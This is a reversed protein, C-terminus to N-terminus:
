PTLKYITGCSGTVACSGSSNGGNRASGYIDGAKNLLVPGNPGQGDTLGTFSYLTVPKGSKPLKFVVGCGSNQFGCSLDGGYITEGYLNGKSDMVVGGDPVAGDEAGTFAYLVTEKWKGDSAPSLEFVVGCGNEGGTCASDGGDSATGYLDGKSDLLVSTPFYGDTLGTFSYLVKWEGSKTLEFVTGSDYLGGFLSTGYLNGDADMILDSGQQADKGAKFVHLITEQKSSINLKFVGGCGPLGFGEPGICNPDGGIVTVGYLNGSKDLVLPGHWMPIGGDKQGKFARLVTEHGSKDLKFVVGCGYGDLCTLDGGYSTTGYLNGQGDLVLDYFPYSGDNGNFSHVWIEKGSKDVKFVTGCGDSGCNGSSGGQTTTGYINGADDVVVGGAPNAGNTFDFEVLTSEKYTQAQAKKAVVGASVLVVALALALTAARRSAAMSSQILSRGQISGTM